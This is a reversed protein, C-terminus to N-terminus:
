EQDAPAIEFVPRRPKIHLRRRVAHLAYRTMWSLGLETQYASHSSTERCQSCGHRFARGLLAGITPRYPDAKIEPSSGYSLDLMAKVATPLQGSGVWTRDDRRRIDWLESLPDPLHHYMSTKWNVISAAMAKLEDPSHEDPLGLRAFVDALLQLDRFQKPDLSQHELPKGTDQLICLFLDPLGIIPLAPTHSLVTTPRPRMQPDRTEWLNIRTGSEPHLVLWYRLPENSRYFSRETHCCILVYGDDFLSPRVSQFNPVVIDIEHDRYTRGAPLEYLGPYHIALMIRLAASGTIMWGPDLHRNLAKAHYLLGLFGQRTFGPPIELQALPM